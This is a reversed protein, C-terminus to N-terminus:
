TALAVNASSYFTKIVQLNPDDYITQWYAGNILFNTALRGDLYYRWSVTSGDPNQQFKIQGRGNYSKQTKGGLANIFNTDLGGPEYAFSNTALPTGDLDIVMMNTVQGLADIRNSASIGRPGIKLSLNNLPDYQYFTTAYLDDGTEAEVGSGDQKARCRW